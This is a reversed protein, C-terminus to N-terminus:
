LFNLYNKRELKFNFILFLLLWNNMPRSRYGTGLRSGPTRPGSRFRLESLVVTCQAPATSWLGAPRCGQTRERGKSGLPLLLKSM